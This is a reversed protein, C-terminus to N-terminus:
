SSYSDNALFFAWKKEAKGITLCNITLLNGSLHYESKTIQQFNPLNKFAVNRVNNM